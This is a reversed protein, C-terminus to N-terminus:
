LCCSFVRGEREMWLLGTWEAADLSVGETSSPAITQISYSALRTADSGTVTSITVGSELVMEAAKSRWFSRQGLRGLANKGTDPSRTNAWPIEFDSAWFISKIRYKRASIEAAEHWLPM